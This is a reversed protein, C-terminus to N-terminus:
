VSLVTSDGEVIDPFKSVCDLVLDGNARVFLVMNNDEVVIAPFEFVWDLVRDDNTWVLLETTGEEVIVRSLRLVCGLVTNIVSVVTKEEFEILESDGTSDLAIGSVVSVSLETSVLSVGM